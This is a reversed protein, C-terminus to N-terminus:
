PKPIDYHIHNLLVATLKELSDGFLILWYNGSDEPSAAFLQSGNSKVDIRGANILKVPKGITLNILQSNFTLSAQPLPGVLIAEWSKEKPSQGDLIFPPFFVGISKKGKEPGDKVEEGPYFVMACNARNPFDATFKTSAFGPCRAEMSPKGGPIIVGGTSQGPTFGAAWLEQNSMFVHLNEPGPLANLLILSAKTLSPTQGHTPWPLWALLLVLCSLIESRM